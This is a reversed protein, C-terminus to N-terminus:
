FKLDIANLLKYTKYDLAVLNGGSKGYNKNSAYYLVNGIYAFRSNTGYYSDMKLKAGIEFGKPSFEVVLGGSWQEKTSKGKMSVTQDFYIPFAMIGKEMDFMISKPNSFSESHTNPGGLVMKSVERPKQPDSIDFLSVKLGSQTTGVVSESGDANRVFTDGIEVGLGIVYKDTYPHLYTSFGPIKLEGAVKPKTADSLDIVFLPDVQLFTVVYATDGRFRVSQISEDKALGTVSGIEKMTSASLVYVGNVNRGKENRSTTAVRLTSKYEDMAYQNVLNGPIIGMASFTLGNKDVTFRNLYTSPGNNPLTAFTTGEATKVDKSTPNGYYYYTNALVLGNKSMYVTDNNGEYAKITIPEKDDLRFSGLLTLSNNYQQKQTLLHVDSPSLVYTDKGLVSDSYAPLCAGAKQELYANVYSNTVFYLSNNFFRTTNVYGSVEVARDLQPNAPNSIDYVYFASSSEHIPTNIDDYLSSQYLTVVLILHKGSLYMDTFNGNTGSLNPSLSAIQKPAAGAQVIAVGQNGMYYIHKGDTKIIDAEDVGEVQVNTTSHDGSAGVVAIEETAEDVEAPEEMPLEEEVIEEAEMVEDDSAAPAYTPAPINRAVFFHEIYSTISSSTYWNSGALQKPKASILSDLAGTPDGKKDLFDSVNYDAIDKLKIRKGYPFRGAASKKGTSQTGNKTEVTISNSPPNSSAPQAALASISLLLAVGFAMGRCLTHKM